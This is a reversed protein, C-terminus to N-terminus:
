RSEDPRELYDNLETNLRETIYDMQQDLATFHFQYHPNIELMARAQNVFEMLIDKEDLMRVDEDNVAEGVQVFFLPGTLLGQLYLRDKMTINSLVIEQHDEKAKEHWVVEVGNEKLMQIMGVVDYEADFSMVRCMLITNLKERTIKRQNAPCLVMCDKNLLNTWVEGEGHEVTTYYGYSDDKEEIYSVNTLARVVPHEHSKIGYGGDKTPAEEIVTLTGIQEAIEDEGPGMIINHPAPLPIYHTNIINM